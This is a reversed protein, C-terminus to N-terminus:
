RKGRAQQYTAVAMTVGIALLATAIIDSRTVFGLWVSYSKWISAKAVLSNSAAIILLSIGASIALVIAFDYLRRVLPTM